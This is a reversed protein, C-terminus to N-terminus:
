SHFLATRHLTGVSTVVIPLLLFRLITGMHSNYGGAM